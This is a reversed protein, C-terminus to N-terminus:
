WQRLGLTMLTVTGKLRKQLERTVEKKNIEHIEIEKLRRVLKDMESENLAKKEGTLTTKVATLREPHESAGELWRIKLELGVHYNGVLYVTFELTLLISLYVILFILFVVM